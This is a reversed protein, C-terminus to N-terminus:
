TEKLRGRNRLAIGAGFESSHLMAVFIGKSIHKKIAYGAPTKPANESLFLDTVM